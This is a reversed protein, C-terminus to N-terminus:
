LNTGFEELRKGLVLELSPLLRQAKEQVGVRQKPPEGVIRRERRLGAFENPGSRVADQDASGRSPLDGRLGTDAFEGLGGIERQTKVGDERCFQKFRKGNSGGMGGTGAKEGAGMLIWKVAHEDSLGLGFIKGDEAVVGDKVSVLESPKPVSKKRPKATLNEKCNESRRIISTSEIKHNQLTQM